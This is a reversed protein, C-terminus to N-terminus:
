NWREVLTDELTDLVRLDLGEQGVAVIIVDFREELIDKHWETIEDLRRLSPLAVSAFGGSEGVTFLAQHVTLLSVLPDAFSIDANYNELLSQILAVGPSHTLLSQSRKFGVGVVLVRARSAFDEYHHCNQTKKEKEKQFTSMIRRAVMGPRAWMSETAARLLPMECNRLLYYPNVPICPGGVGLGPTYPIYGFPKSSAASCVESPDINHRLCADAMENAYAICMMRQCNEYLKTM